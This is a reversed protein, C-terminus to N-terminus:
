GIKPLVYEKYLVNGSYINICFNLSLISESLSIYVLQEYTSIFLKKNLCLTSITNFKM